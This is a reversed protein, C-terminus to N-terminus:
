AASNAATPQPALGQMITRNLDILVEFEGTGRMVQSTYKSVFLSLSIISARLQEPLKNETSACDAGLNSWLRRNWDLADIRSSIEIQDTESAQMLARTVQAFLRYETSRPDEVRTSAKQYAQFSM